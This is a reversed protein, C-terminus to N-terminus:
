NILEIYREEIRTLFTIVEYAKPLIVNVLHREAYDANQNQLVGAERHIFEHPAHTDSLLSLIKEDTIGKSGEYDLWKGLACATPDLSGTFKSGTLVAETLDQRWIYHANLAEVVEHTEMQLKALERFKQTLEHISAIGTVGLVMGIASMLLFATMLKTKIRMNKFNNRM